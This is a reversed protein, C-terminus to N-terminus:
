AKRNSFLIARSAATAGNRRRLKRCNDGMVSRFDPKMLLNFIDPLDQIERERLEIAAGEDQAFSARGSQDDM